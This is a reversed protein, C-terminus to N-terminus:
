AKPKRWPKRTASVRSEDAEPDHEGLRERAARVASWAKMVRRQNAESPDVRYAEEAEFLARETIQVLEDVEVASM